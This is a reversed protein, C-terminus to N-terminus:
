LSGPMMGFRGPQLILFPELGQVSNREPQSLRMGVEGNVHQDRAYQMKILDDKRSYMFGASVVTLTLSISSKDDSCILPIGESLIYRAFGISWSVLTPSVVVAILSSSVKLV